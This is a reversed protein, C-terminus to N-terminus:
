PTAYIAVTVFHTTAAAVVLLHFVEHFGFVAPVPDPRQRAYVIAGTTYLLGGLLLLSTCVAGAQDIVQPTAVLIVWGLAVYGVAVASRPARTWALKMAIGAFAGIWVVLLVVRGVADDLVFTAFPTYTGAILVYIMSHDIGRIVPLAQASWTRRHYMASTGLMAALSAAYVAIATAPASAVLAVGAVTAGLFAWQHAVGRLLPKALAEAPPTGIV